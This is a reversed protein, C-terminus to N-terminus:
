KADGRGNLGPFERGGWPMRSSMAWLRGAPLWRALDRVGTRQAVWGNVRWTAPRALSSERALLERVSALIAARHDDDPEPSIEIDVHDNVPSAYYGARSRRFLPYLM